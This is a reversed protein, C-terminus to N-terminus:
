NYSENIYEIPQKVERKISMRERLNKISNSLGKGFANMAESFEKTSLKKNQPERDIFYTIRKDTNQMNLIGQLERAIEISLGTHLTKYHVNGKTRTAKILKCM